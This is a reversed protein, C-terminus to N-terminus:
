ALGLGSGGFQQPIMAALWGAETLANVFEEPYAREADIRRHYEDPYQECLARVGDRIDQYRDATSQSM